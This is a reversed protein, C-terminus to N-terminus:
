PRAPNPSIPQCRGCASLAVAANGPPRFHSHTGRLIERIPPAGDDHVALVHHALHMGDEVLHWVEGSPHAAALLIAVGDCRDIIDDIDASRVQPRHHHVLCQSVVVLANQCEAENGVDIASLVGRLRHGDDRWLGERRGLHHGVRVRRAGPCELSQCMMSSNGRMEDSDRGTYNLHRSDAALGGVHEREPGPYRARM